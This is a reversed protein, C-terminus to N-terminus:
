QHQNRKSRDRTTTHPRTAAAQHTRTARRRVTVHTAHLYLTRRRLTPDQTRIRSTDTENAGTTRPRARDPPQPTTHEPRARRHPQTSPAVTSHGGGFPPTRPEFGVLTPKTQEPRTQGTPRPRHATTNSDDREAPRTTLANAVPGPPGRNLGPFPHKQKQAYKLRDIPTKADLGVFFVLNLFWFM